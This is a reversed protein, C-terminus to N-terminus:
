HTAVRNNVDRGGRLTSDRLLAEAILEKQGEDVTLSRLMGALAQRAQAILAGHTRAVFDARDPNAAYWSDNKALEEYVAAAIERATRVVLVHAHVQRAM